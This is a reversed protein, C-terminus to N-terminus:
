LEALSVFEENATDARKIGTLADGMDAVDGFLRRGYPRLDGHCDDMFDLLRCRWVNQALLDKQAFGAGVTRTTV